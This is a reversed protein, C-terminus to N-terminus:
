KFFFDNTSFPHFAVQHIRVQPVVQAALLANYKSELEEYKIGLIRLSCTCFHFQMLLCGNYRHQFLLKGKSLKDFSNRWLRVKAKKM